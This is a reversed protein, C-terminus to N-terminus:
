LSFSQYSVLMNINMLYFAYNCGLFSLDGTQSSGYSSIKYYFKLVSHVSCNTPSGLEM